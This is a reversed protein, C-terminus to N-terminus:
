NQECKIILIQPSAPFLRLPHLYTWTYCLSSTVYPRHICPYSHTTGFHFLTHFVTFHFAIFPMLLTCKRLYVPFPVSPLSALIFLCWMLSTICRHFSPSTPVVLCFTYLFVLSTSKHCLYCFVYLQQLFSPAFHLTLSSRVNLRNISKENTM